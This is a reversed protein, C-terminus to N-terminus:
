ENTYWIGNETVWCPVFSTGRWFVLRCNNDAFRVLVDPYDGVRWLRDWQSTYSLNTYDAGFESPGEPGAPLIRKEPEIGPIPLFENYIKEIHFNELAGEFIVIEDISGDLYSFKDKVTYQYDWWEEIMSNRGVTLKLNRTSRLPPPDQMTINKQGDIYIIAEKGHEVVLSVMLWKGLPLKGGSVEKWTTPKGLGLTIEGHRNVGLIVGEKESARLDFVPCRYWPYAKLHVWLNITFSKSLESGFRDREMYSTFGDLGLGGGVVGNVREFFGIINDSKESQSEIARADKNTNFSWSAIVEQADLKVFLFLCIILIFIKKM